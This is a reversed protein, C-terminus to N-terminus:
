YLVSMPFASVYIKFVVKSRFMYMLQCLDRLAWEAVGTKFSTGALNCPGTEFIGSKSFNSELLTKFDPLRNQM